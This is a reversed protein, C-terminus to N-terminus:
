PQGEPVFSMVLGVIVGSAVWTTTTEADWIRVGVLAHASMLTVPIFAVVGLLRRGLWWRSLPLLAGVLTGALLGAALYLGLLDLLSVSRLWPEDSPRLARALAPVLGLFWFGMGFFLGWGTGKLVNAGLRPLLGQHSHRHAYELEDSPSSM